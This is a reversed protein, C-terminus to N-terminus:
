LKLMIGFAAFFNSKDSLYYRSYNYSYGLDSLLDFGNKKLVSNIQFTYEQDHLRVSQINKNFYDRNSEIRQILLGFSCMEKIWKIGFNDSIAGPGVGAGIIQGNNTYGHRNLYHTYYSQDATRYLLVPGRSLNTHEYQFILKQDSDLEATKEFGITYARQGGDPELLTNKIGGTFDNRSYELYARFGVEIFNWDMTFSALGDFTDNPVSPLNPRSGDDLIVFPAILDQAKFFEANKYMIRNFGLTLEKLFPPNYAFFFGNIYRFDNSPVEDYYKSEKLLGHILQVQIQGLYKKGLRLNSNDFEVKFHPFGSANRSLLLQNFNSPGLSYNQTSVAFSVKGLNLNLESQGPLMSFFPKDGYRQVWDINSNFQYNYRNRSASSSEALPFEANQSFFFIPNIVFSMKGKKGTLGLHMETTIGRGKWVAGDNLSRPYKSNFSVKMIPDVFSLGAEISPMDISPYLALHTSDTHKNFELLYNGPTVVQGVATLNQVIVWAFIIRKM